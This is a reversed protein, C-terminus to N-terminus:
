FSTKRRLIFSYHKTTQLKNKNETFNQNGWKNENWCFVKWFFYKYKKLHKILNFLMQDTEMNTIISVFYFHKLNFKILSFKKLKFHLEVNIMRRNKGRMWKCCRRSIWNQEQINSYIANSNLCILYFM